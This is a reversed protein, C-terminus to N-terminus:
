ARLSPLADMLALELLSHDVEFAVQSRPLATERLEAAAQEGLDGHIVLREIAWGRLENMPQDESPEEVVIGAAIEVITADRQRQNLQRNYIYM